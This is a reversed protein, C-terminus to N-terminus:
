EEAWYGDIRAADEREIQWEEAQPVMLLVSNWNRDDRGVTIDRTAGHRATGLAGQRSAQLVSRGAMTSAARQQRAASLLGRSAMTSLAAGAARPAHRALAGPAQRAVTQLANMMMTTDHTTLTSTPSHTRPPSGICRHQKIKSQDPQNAPAAKFGPFLGRCRAGGASSHLETSPRKPNYYSM